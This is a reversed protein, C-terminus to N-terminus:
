EYFEAQSFCLMHVSKYGAVVCILLSFCVFNNIRIACMKSLAGFTAWCGFDLKDAFHM